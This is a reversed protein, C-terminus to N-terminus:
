SYGQWLWKPKPMDEVSWRPGYTVRLPNTMNFGRTWRARKSHLCTLHPPTGGGMLITAGALRWKCGFSGVGPPLQLDKEKHSPIPTHSLASSSMDFSALASPVM